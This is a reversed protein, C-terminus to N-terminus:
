PKIVTLLLFPDGLTDAQNVLENWYAAVAMVYNNEAEQLNKQLQLLEILSLLGSQYRVTYLGYAEKSAALSANAAVLKERQEEWGSVAAAYQAQLQIAGAARQAKAAAIERDAIATKTKNQYLSSFNWTLGVGALWTGSANQWPAALGTNITGDTGIGSGKLGVGGLLSVSPYQDKKVAEKNAEASQIRANLVQLYPHNQLAAKTGVSTSSFRNFVTTDLFIDASGVGMLGGLQVLRTRLAASYDHEKAKSQLLSAKLLLTNAGPRLGAIAQAQLLELLDSLRRTEAKAVDLAAENALIGFYLRTAAPLLNWEEQKLEAKSFNIAADAAALKKKQRGFQLFSWQLLASTNLNAGTTQGAPTKNSGTTTYIGPLPFFSGPIAQVSGASQQAQVAVDPLIGHRILEKRLEEAKIAEKRAILSPYHQLVNQWVDPLSYMKVQAFVATTNLLLFVMAPVIQKKMM